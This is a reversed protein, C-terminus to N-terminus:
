KNYFPFLKRIEDPQPRRGYECIEFAEAYQVKGAEDKGYYTELSARYKKATSNFREAFRERVQKKRAGWATEDKPDPVLGAHGNAGGEFFQSHLAEVAAFKKEIVDDIAVVIDATFPNPRQFNDESFLFVPNKTLYPTDPTFFPVTVMYAADMVLVGVYRHDPHYDNPRHSIVVDAKWERILRCITRRNEMTVMLEGDHIDLVEQTVGLIKGTEKVEAARRKALPGGAMNWHGIDGNTCSVFKVHHGLAAWKAAAGGERLETDDPHAGFAIIRLKGDQPIEAPVPSSAHMTSVGGSSSCSVGVLAMWLALGGMMRKMM